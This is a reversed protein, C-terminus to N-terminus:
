PGGILRCVVPAPSGLSTAPEPRPEVVQVQGATDAGRRLVRQAVERGVLPALDGARDRLVQGAAPREVDAAVGAVVGELQGLAAGVDEADVVVRVEEGLGPEGGLLEADRLPDLQPLQVDVVQGPQGVGEVDHQEETHEVV